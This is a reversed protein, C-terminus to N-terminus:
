LDLGRKIAKSPTYRKNPTVAANNITRPSQDNIKILDGAANKFSYGTKDSKLIAVALEKSENLREKYRRENDARERKAMENLLQLSDVRRHDCAYIRELIREDLEWAEMVKCLTGNPLRELVVFPADNIDAKDPDLCMLSLNEDYETIREAIHLADREVMQGDIVLFDGGLDLVNSM